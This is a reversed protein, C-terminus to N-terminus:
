TQKGTFKIFYSDWGKSITGQGQGYRIMINSPAKGFTNTVIQEGIPLADKLKPKFDTIQAASIAEEESMGGKMNYAVSIVKEWEEARLTAESFYSQVKDLPPTYSEEVPRVQQVFKRISM